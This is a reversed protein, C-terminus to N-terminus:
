RLEKFIQKLVDRYSDYVNDIHFAFTNNREYDSKTKYVLEAPKELRFTRQVVMYDEFKYIACNHIDTLEFVWKM